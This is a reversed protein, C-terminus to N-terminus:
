FTPYRWTRLPGEDSLLECLRPDALVADVTTRVGDVEMARAVLRIGHSYDVHPFTHGSYLPQVKTGDRHHWGYIGVHRPREGMAAFVVVDKKCGAVLEGRAGPSLQAEIAAHHQAFLGVSVIDHEQPSFPIPEVQVAAARWIADVMKRTPLVCGLADACRQAQPPSLPMRLWDGDTGFGFYDRACWFRGTHRVGDIEAAVDIPVLTWLFPPVNGAAIQPDLERERAALDLGRLRELLQTGSAADPLRPPVPLSPPPPAACAALLAALVLVPRM